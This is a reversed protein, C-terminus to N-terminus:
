QFSWEVYEDCRVYMPSRGDMDYAGVNFTATIGVSLGFAAGISITVSQFGILEGSAPNNPGGSIYEACESQAAAVSPQALSVALAGAFAWAVALPWTARRNRRTRMM